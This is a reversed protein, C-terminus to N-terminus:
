GWGRILLEDGPGVVYDAAVPMSQVPAFTSPVEAFLSQGFIPLKQGVSQTVFNQFENNEGPIRPQAANTTNKVAEPRAEEIRNQTNTIRIPQAEQQQQVQRLMDDNSQDQGSQPTQDPRLQDFLSPNMQDSQTPDTTTQALVSSSFVCSTMMLAVSVAARLHHNGPHSLHPLKSM